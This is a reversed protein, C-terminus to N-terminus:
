KLYKEKLQQQLSSTFDAIAQRYISIKEWEEAKGNFVVFPLKGNFFEIQEIGLKRATQEALEYIEQAQSSVIRGVAEKVERITKPSMNELIVEICTWHISKDWGGESEQPNEPKTADPCQTCCKSHDVKEQECKKETNPQPMPPATKLIPNECHQCTSKDHDCKM